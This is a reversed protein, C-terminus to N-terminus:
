APAVVLGGAPARGRSRLSDTAARAMAISAKGLALIWVPRGPDLDLRDLRASLAPGPAAARTATAYLDALLIRSPSRPNPSLVTKLVVEPWGNTKGALPVPAHSADSALVSEGPSRTRAARKPINLWRQISM